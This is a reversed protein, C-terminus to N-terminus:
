KEKKYNDGSQGASAMAARFDLFPHGLFIGAFFSQRGGPPAKYHPRVPLASEEREIPSAVM